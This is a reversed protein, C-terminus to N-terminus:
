VPPTPRTRLDSPNASFLSGMSFSREWSFCSEGLGCRPIRNSALAVIRPTQMRPLFLQDDEVSPSSHDNEEPTDNNDRSRDAAIQRRPLPQECIRSFNAFESFGESSYQFAALYVAYRTSCLSKSGGLVYRQVSM